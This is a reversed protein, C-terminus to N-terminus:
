RLNRFVAELFLLGDLRQHRHVVLHAEVRLDAGVFEALHEFGLLDNFDVQYDRESIKVVFFGPARGV